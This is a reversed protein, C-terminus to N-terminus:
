KKKFEKFEEPHAKVYAAAADLKENLRMIVEAQEPTIKEASGREGFMKDVWDFHEELCTIIEANLSRRLKKAQQSLRNYMEEPLRVQLAKTKEDM